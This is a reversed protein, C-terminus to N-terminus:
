RPALGNDLADASQRSSLVGRLFGFAQARKRTSLVTLPSVCKGIAELLATLYPRPLHHKRMAYVKSRALHYAKWGANGATRASSRGELHRILADAAFLLPGAQQQLRLSLDDDEHYLFINTDFGGVQEFATRRVFLAAGSLVAVTQTGPPWGRAAWKSRPLLTSGRKFYQKGVANTIAPNCASASPNNDMCSVLADIAGPEVETDPNLFFLFETALNAAGTNCSTGFGPNGPQPRVTAGANRAIAVSNDSSNNDVVIVPQGDPLSNLMDGLVAASNFSVTIVTVRSSM